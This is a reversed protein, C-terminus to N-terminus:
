EALKIQHIDAEDVVEILDDRINDGGDTVDRQLIAEAEEESKAEIFSSFTFTVRGTIRYKM